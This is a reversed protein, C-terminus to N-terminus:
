RYVRLDYGRAEIAPIQEPYHKAICDKRVLPEINFLDQADFCYAPDDTLGADPDYRWRLRNFLSRQVFVCAASALHRQVPFPYEPAVPGSLCYTPIEAGVLPWNVELLKPIVDVPPACDAAVFLMHSAGNAVCYDTALNEGMTLHRQRNLTTVINRGDDLTYTWYDSPLEDFRNILPEFLGIGRSDMEIAAFFEVDNPKAAEMIGEANRLWSGWVQPNGMAFTTLTTAVVIKM